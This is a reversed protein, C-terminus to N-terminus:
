KSSEASCSFFYAVCGRSVMPFAVFGVLALTIEPAFVLFHGEQRDRERGGGGREWSQGDSLYKKGERKGGRGSRTGVRSIPPLPPSRDPQVSVKPAVM